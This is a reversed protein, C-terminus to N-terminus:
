LVRDETVVVDMDVDWPNSEMEPIIQAETTVGVKYIDDKDALFRDYYGKGRGKRQHGPSFRTGPTLCVTRRRDYKYRRGSRDPERVGLQGPVFAELDEVEYFELGSDRTVPFYIHHGDDRFEDFLPRLDVEDRLPYYMLIDLTDDAKDDVIRKIETLMDM